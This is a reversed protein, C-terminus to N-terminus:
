FFFLSLAIALQAGYYLIDNMVSLVPKIKKGPNGFFLPVLDVDSLLFLLMGFGFVIAQSNDSFGRRDILFPLVAAATLVVTYALAPVLYSGFNLKILKAFIFILFAMFLGCVAAILPPKGGPRYTFLLGAMYFLHGVLFAAFGYYM